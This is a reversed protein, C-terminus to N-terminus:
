LDLPKLSIPIIDAYKLMEKAKDKQITNLYEINENHELYELHPIKTDSESYRHMDINLKHMLLDLPHKLIEEDITCVVREKEIKLNNIFELHEDDYQPYPVIYQRYYRFVYLKSDNRSIRFKDLSDLLDKYESDSLKDKVSFILNSVNMLNEDDMKQLSM